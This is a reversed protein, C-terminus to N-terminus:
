KKRGNGLGGKGPFDGSEMGFKPEGNSTGATGIDPQNESDPDTNQVTEQLGQM